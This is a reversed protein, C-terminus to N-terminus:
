HVTTNTRGYSEETKIQAAVVQNTQAFQEVRALLDKTQKDNHTLNLYESYFSAIPISFMEIAQNTNGAEILEIARIGRAAELRDFSEVMEMTQKTTESIIHMEYYRYGICSGIAMGVLLAITSTIFVKM